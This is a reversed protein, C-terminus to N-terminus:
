GGEKARRDVLVSLGRLPSADGLESARVEVSQGPWLLPLVQETLGQGLLGDARVPGGGVVVTDPTYALCLAAIGRALWGQYARLGAVAQADGTLAADYAASVDAADCGADRVEALLRDARCWAEVTGHRGATDTPGHDTLPLQGGLLGGGLPGRGLPRGDEVVATGVGTGLTMSVTRGPLDAAVGVGYAVADNVVVAPAGTRATLWGTLDAGVIGALKGPLSTVCGDDDVLGPVCMGVADVPGDALLLGIAAEVTELAPGLQGSAHSRVLVQGPVGDTVVAAKVRTGGLDIALM